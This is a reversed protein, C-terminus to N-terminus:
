AFVIIQNIMCNKGQNYHHLPPTLRFHRYIQIYYRDAPAADEHTKLLVILNIKTNAPGRSHPGQLVVYGM